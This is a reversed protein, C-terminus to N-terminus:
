KLFEENNIKFIMIIMDIDFINSMADLIIISLLMNM